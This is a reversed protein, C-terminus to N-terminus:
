RNFTEYHNQNRKTLDPSGQLLKYKGPSLREGIGSEPEKRPFIITNQKFPKVKNKKYMSLTSAMKYNDPLVQLYEDRSGPEGVAPLAYNGEEYTTNNSTLVQVSQDQSLFSAANIDRGLRQTDM